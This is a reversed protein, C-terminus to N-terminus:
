RKRVTREKKSNQQKKKERRVEMGEVEKERTTSRCNSKWASHFGGYGLGKLGESGSKLDM